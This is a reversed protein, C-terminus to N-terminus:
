ILDWTGPVHTERYIGLTIRQLPTKPFHQLEDKAVFLWDSSVMGKFTRICHWKEKREKKKQM